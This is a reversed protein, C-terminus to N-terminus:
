STFTGYYTVGLANAVGSVVIGDAAFEICPVLLGAPLSLALSGPAGNKVLLIGTKAPGDDSTVTATRPQYQLVIARPVTAGDGIWSALYDISPSKNAM